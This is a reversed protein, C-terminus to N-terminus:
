HEETEAATIPDKDLARWAWAIYAIVFPIIFSVYTM